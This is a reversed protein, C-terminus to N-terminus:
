GHSRGNAPADDDFLDMDIDRRKLPKIMYTANTLLTAERVRRAAIGPGGGTLAKIAPDAGVMDSRGVAENFTYHGYRRTNWALSLLADFEHQLLRPQLSKPLTDHVLASYSPVVLDFLAQQQPLTLNLAQKHRKVFSGADPGLLRAANLTEDVAQDPVGVAQLDSKM